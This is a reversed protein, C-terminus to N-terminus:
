EAAACSLAPNFPAFLGSPNDAWVWVHLSWHPVGLATLPAVGGVDFPRGAVTPRPQGVDIVIYEVGVLRSGGNAEPEYLLAEPRLPEFVPDVLAENAWHVGMAGLGPVAVCEHTSEYGAKVAQTVSRFRATEQRLAQVLEQQSAGPDVAPKEEPPADGPSVPANCASLALSAVVASALRVVPMRYHM